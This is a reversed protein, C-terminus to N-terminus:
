QKKKLEPKNNLLQLIDDTYFMEKKSFERFIGEVFNLDEPYEVTWHYPGLLHESQIISRRFSNKQNNIYVTVHEREEISKANVWSKELSELTFGEM